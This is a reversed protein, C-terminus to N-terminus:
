SSGAPAPAPEPEPEPGHSAACVVRNRGAAKAAYLADDAARLLSDPSQGDALEAVGISVTALVPGAATAFPVEAYRRRIEDARAAVDVARARPLVLLFEEGGFRVLVDDARVLASLESAVRVLVEDGVAHGYRDNVAKFHDIDVMVATLPRQADRAHEVMPELVRDLHRRNHLGTLGDRVALEALETRLREFATIDRATVVSAVRRGRVEVASVRVDLVAGWATRIVGGDRVIGRREEPVLDTWSAGAVRDVRGGGAAGLMAEAAPNAQIVTGDPDIVMVADGLVELVQQTSVPVRGLSGGFRGVWWWTGATVLFLASTLDVFGATGARSVSWINGATPLAMAGLSVAYQWRHGAVTRLMAAVLMAAAAALLVYSYATHVWFLPGLDIITAGDAAIRLDTVILHHWPDTLALVTLVVPEIALFAATKQTLRVRGGAYVATHWFAAAVLLGVGPLVAAFFAVRVSVEDTLGVGIGMAAWWAAGLMVLALPVALPSQRRERAVGIGTAMAVVVTLASVVDVLRSM